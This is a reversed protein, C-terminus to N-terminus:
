AVEEVPFRDFDTRYKMAFVQKQDALLGVISYRQKGDKTRQELMMDVWKGFRAVTMTYQYAIWEDRPNNM